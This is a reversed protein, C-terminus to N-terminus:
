TDGKGLPVVPPQRLAQGIVSLVWDMNDHVALNTVRVVSIGYSRIFADRRRDYERAGAQFHSDGDVEVVVHAAACYFDVVYSGISHQRRFKAGGIQGKRLEQWLLVEAVPM